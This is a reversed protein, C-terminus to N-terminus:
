EPEPSGSVHYAPRTVTYTKVTEYVPRTVAVKRWLTKGQAPHRTREALMGCWFSVAVIAILAMITRLRYQKM